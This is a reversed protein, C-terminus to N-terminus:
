WPIIQGVVGIPEHRTYHLDASNDVEIVKGHNKDAWGGYYRLTAAVSPVDFSSSISYAKGNDLSEIAALEPINAEVLDALKMLLKGRQHGPVKEGWSENYAKRAVKVAKDIDKASAESVQCIEEGNSPNLVGFTKGDLSPVFEGGIFLSHSRGPQHILLQVYLAYLRM